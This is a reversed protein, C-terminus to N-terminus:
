LLLRIEDMNFYSQGSNTKLCLQGNEAVGLITGTIIERSKTVLFRHNENKRYLRENYSSLIAPRNGEKLQNYWYDFRKLLRQQVTKLATNDLTTHLSLSTPNPLSPHFDKQLINLGIGVVSSRIKYGSLTNEILIGATKNDEIYIDNPWKIRIKTDKLYSAITEHCSLAAIMSIYFQRDVELFSPYLIISLYINQGPLGVWERGYQGRGNTQHHASIVTGESPANKSVLLAALDNTSPLTQYFHVFKGIM